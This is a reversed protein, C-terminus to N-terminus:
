GDVLAAFGGAILRRGEFIAAEASQPKARPDSLVRALGADRADKSPWETWSLVVAEGPRAAAAMPFDRLPSHRLAERAEDAHFESGDATAPDFLCDVQRLAGYERYIRSVQESYRKFQALKAIPVPILYCDFYAM